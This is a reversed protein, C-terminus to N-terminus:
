IHILSLNLLIRAYIKGAICLLSIGRHNDCCKSDGKNKYLHILEADKFAQPVKGEYWSQRFLKFLQKAIAPGGQKYIEPPIGDAGAAKGATLQKMSDKIEKLSPPVALDPNVEWHPLKYLVSMDFESPQNLVSDFHEEWRNLIEEPDTIVTKGDKTKVSPCSQYKPGYIAKLGQWFSKYDRKDAALQIENARALWWSNQM